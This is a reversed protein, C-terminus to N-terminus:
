CPIPVKPGESCHVSRAHPNTDYVHMCTSMAWSCSRRCRMCNRGSRGHTSSMRTDTRRLLLSRHMVGAGWVVLEAGCLGRLRFLVLMPLVAGCVVLVVGRLGCLVLEAGHPRCTWRVVLLAEVRACDLGCHSVCRVRWVCM